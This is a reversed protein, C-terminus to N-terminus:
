EEAAPLASPIERIKRCSLCNHTPNHATCIIFIQVSVDYDIEPARQVFCCFRSRREPFIQENGHTFVWNENPEIYSSGINPIKKSVYLEVHSEALNFETCLKTKLALATLDPDHLVKAIYDTTDLKHSAPAVKSSVGSGSNRNVYVGLTCSSNTGM